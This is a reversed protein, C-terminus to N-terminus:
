TARSADSPGLSTSCRACRTTSGRPRASRSWTSWRCSTRRVTSSSCPRRSRATRIWATSATTRRRSPRRSCRASPWARPHHRPLRQRAARRRPRASPRRSGADLPDRGPDRPCRATWRRDARGALAALREEERPMSVSRDHLKSSRGLIGRSPSQRYARGTVGADRILRRPRTALRRRHAMSGRDGSARRIDTRVPHNAPRAIARVDDYTERTVVGRSM